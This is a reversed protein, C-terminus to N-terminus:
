TNSTQRIQSPTAHFKEFFLRRFLKYNSFGHQELLHGIPLNTQLLDQYFCSLRIENLYQLYTMGMNKKFFRCFYAPELNAVHAIESISIAKKYHMESYDLIPSLLAINKDQRESDTKSFSSAFSHSLQYLMRFVLSNFLLSTDKDAKQTVHYMELLTQKFANLKAQMAPSTHKENLLFRTQDVGPIVSRLFSMPIQLMLSSHERLCRTTHLHKANILACQDKQLVSVEGAVTVEFEGELVFLIEIADHWHNPFYSSKDHISYFLVPVPGPVEIIEYPNKISLDISM